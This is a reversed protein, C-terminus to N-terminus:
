WLHVMFYWMLMVYLIEILIFIGMYYAMQLFIIGTVNIFSLNGEKVKDSLKSIFKPTVVRWIMFYSFYVFPLIYWNSIKYNQGENIVQHFIDVNKYSAIFAGLFLITISHIVKEIPSLYFGLFKPHQERNKWYNSDM